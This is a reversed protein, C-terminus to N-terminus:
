NLKCRQPKIDFNNQIYEGKITQKAFNGSTDITYINREQQRWQPRDAALGGGDENLRPVNCMYSSYFTVKNCNESLQM